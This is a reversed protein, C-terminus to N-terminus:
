YGLAQGVSVHGLIQYGHFVVKVTGRAPVAVEPTCHVVIRDTREVWGAIGTYLPNYEGYFAPAPISRNTWFRGSGAIEIQFSFEPIAGLVDVDATGSGLIDGLQKNAFPTASAGGISNGLTNLLLPYASCPLIRGTPVASGYLDQDYETTQDATIKFYPQIQTMIFPGDPSIEVSNFSLTNAGYAFEVDVEYWRPTRVGPIDDIDKIVNNWKDLSSIQKNLDDLKMRNVEEEKLSRSKISMMDSQLANITSQLQNITHNSDRLMQSLKEVSDSMVREGNFNVYYSLYLLGQPEYIDFIFFGELQQQLM